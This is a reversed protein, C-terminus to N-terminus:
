ARPGRVALKRGDVTQFNIRTTCHVCSFFVVHRYGLWVLAGTLKLLRQMLHLHPGMVTRLIALKGALDPLAILEAVKLRTAHNVQTWDVTTPNAVNEISVLATEEDSGINPNPNTEASPGGGEVNKGRDTNPLGRPGLDDDDDDDGAESGSDFDAEVVPRSHDRLERLWPRMVVSAIGHCSELLGIWNVALNARTWRSRPFMPCEAPVLADVVEKCMIDLTQQKGSCCGFCYHVPRNHSWDGNLLERLVQRRELARPGYDDVSIFTDLKAEREIAASSSKVPPAAGRYIKLRKRFFCRLADRFRQVTGGPRMALATHVIGSIVPDLITAQLTQCTYAKHIDCPLHLRCEKEPKAMRRMAEYKMNSAARDTQSISVVRPFCEILEHLGPVDWAKDLCAKLTAATTTDVTQLHVPIKTVVMIPGHPGSLLFGVRAETQLIKAVAKWKKAPKGGGQPSDETQARVLMPTEDFASSLIACVPRAGSALLRRLRAFLMKSCMSAVEFMTGASELLVEQFWQLSINLRAAESRASALPRPVDSCVLDLVENATHM